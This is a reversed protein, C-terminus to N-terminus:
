NEPSILIYLGADQSRMENRFKCIKALPSSDESGDFNAALTVAYGLDQLIRINNQNFNDLMSAMSATMLAKKMRNKDKEKKDFM